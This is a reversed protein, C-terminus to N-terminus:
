FKSTLGVIEVLDNKIKYWHEHGSTYFQLLQVKNFVELVLIRMKPELHSLEPKM